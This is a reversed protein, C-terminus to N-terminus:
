GAETSAMPLSIPGVPLDGPSGAGAVPKSVTSSIGSAAQCRAGAALPEAAGLCGPMSYPSGHDGARTLRRNSLDVPEFYREPWGRCVTLIPLHPIQWLAACQRHNQVERPELKIQSRQRM